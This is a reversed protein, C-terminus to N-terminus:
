LLNQTASWLAFLLFPLLLGFIKLLCNISSLLQVSIPQEDASCFVLSCFLRFGEWFFFHFPWLFVWYHSAGNRNIGKSILTPMSSALTDVLSTPLKHWTTFITKRLADVTQFQLGNSLDQEHLEVICRELVTLKEAKAMLLDQCLSFKFIVLFGM